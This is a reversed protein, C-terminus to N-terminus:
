QGFWGPDDPFGAVNPTGDAAIFITLPLRGAASRPVDGALILPGLEPGPNVFIAWNQEAGGSPVTFIVETTAGPDVTSPSATGVREGIPVEDVAVMLRAPADSDNQVVIIWQRSGGLNSLTGGCAALGFVIAVAGLLFTRRSTPM